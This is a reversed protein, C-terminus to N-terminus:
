WDKQLEFSGDKELRSFKYRKGEFGVEVDQGFKLQNLLQPTLGVLKGEISEPFGLQPSPGLNTEAMVTTIRSRLQHGQHDTGLGTTISLPHEM